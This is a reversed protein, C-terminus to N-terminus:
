IPRIAASWSVTMDGGTGAPLALQIVPERYDASWTGWAIDASDTKNRFSIGAQQLRTNYEVQASKAEVHVISEPVWFLKTPIKLTATGTSVGTFSITGGQESVLGEHNRCNRFRSLQLFAELDSWGLGLQDDLRFTCNEWVFSLFSRALAGDTRAAAYSLASLAGTGGPLRVLLSNQTVFRSDRVVVELQKPVDGGFETAPDPIDAQIINQALIEQDVQELVFRRPRDWGRAVVGGQKRLWPRALLLISAVPSGAGTMPVDIDPRSRVGRLTLDLAMPDRDGYLKLGEANGILDVNEVVIGRAPSVQFGNGFERLVALGDGALHAQAATAGFIVGDRLAVPGGFYGILLQFKHPTPVRIHFKSLWLGRRWQLPFTRSSATNPTPQLAADVGQPSFLVNEPSTPYLPNVTLGEAEYGEISLHQARNYEGYAFGYQKLDKIWGNAWYFHHNRGSNGLTLGRAVIGGHGGHMLGSGTDHIHVDELYFRFGDPLFIQGETFGEFGFNIGCWKTTDQLMQDIAVGIGYRSPDYQGPNDFWNRHGNGEDLGGDIEVGRLGVWDCGAEPSVGTASANNVVFDPDKEDYSTRYAHLPDSLAHVRLIGNVLWTKNPLRVTSRFDYAKGDLTVEGLGRARARTITWAVRHFAEPDHAAPDTARAGFWRVSLAGGEIVRVWRRANTITRHRFTVDALATRNPNNWPNAAYDGLMQAGAMGNTQAALLAGTKFDLLAAIRYGGGGGHGVHGHLHFAKIVLEPTYAYAVEFTDWDINAPLSASLIAGRAVTMTTVDSLDGTHAFCTGGDTERHGTMEAVFLGGGGDGPSHYGLVRVVAGATPALARLDAITAVTTLGATAAVLVDALAQQATSEQGTLPNTVFGGHELEAKAAAWNARSAAKSVAAGPAPHTPDITSPM